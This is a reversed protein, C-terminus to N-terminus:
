AIDLEYAFYYRRGPFLKFEVLHGEVLLVDQRALSDALHFLNALRLLYRSAFGHVPWVSM